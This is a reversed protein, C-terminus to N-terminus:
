NAQAALSLRLLAQNQDIFFRFHQLFNMGLLGDIAGGGLDLVGVELESVQWDGVALSDLRYVPANIRGNATNFTGTRGTDHAATGWAKLAQPTLITLSAGTDILLRVPHGDRSRAQVVFHNGSRQLPIAAPEEPEPAPPEEVQARAVRTRSLLERAKAGVEPDAAVLQLSQRAGETDDLALQVTALGIFYPAYSPEQRTLDQYLELLASNDGSRRLSGAYDAVLTRIRADIQEIMEPRWAQGKAEYLQDIAARLDHRGRLAQALLMRAEADRYDAQLYRQLLQVSSAAEGTAILRRAFTLLQARVAQAGSDDSRAQLKEFRRVARDFAGDQLLRVIDEVREGDTAAKTRRQAPAPHYAPPTTAGARPVSRGQPASWREHSYWGLGWGATLAMVLLIGSGKQM